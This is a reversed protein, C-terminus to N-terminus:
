FRANRRRYDRRRWPQRALMLARLEADRAIRQREAMIQAVNTLIAKWDIPVAMNRIAAVLKEREYALIVARGNIRGPLLCWLLQSLHGAGEPVVCGRFDFLVPVRSNLWTKAFLEDPFTSLFVGKLGSGQLDQIGSLFRPLDRTLRSGDVAWLMNGYFNERAAREEARITSHQFEITLGHPTRVDAIHREGFRDSAVVEQCEVPFQNKWDRHWATEREWWSDCSRTSRHAWHAIREPGCKAIM